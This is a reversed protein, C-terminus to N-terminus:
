WSFSLAATGLVDPAHQGKFEETRRVVSFDARIASSWFVSFGAQLDAVLIKKPVSASSQFSNGDLFINHAVARGQAGVFFYYGASGELRDADFYDTGSLGPRVRVPGYDVPLNTGVRLQGGLAAYTMVNGITAGAAPVVDVDFSGHGDGVLPRRWLREYSIMAGPENHLQFDWGAARGIGLFQHWRNQVQEGGAAPGVVGLDIEFNELMDGGTEQLLSTGLYAWAAYPRDHPDPPNQQIDKPTFISQAFFLAYRRKRAPDSQPFIPALDGLGDFPANWGSEPAVDPRLLSLRLGQTFHKDSYFYLSDNEELLTVRNKDDARAPGGPESVLWWVAPLLVLLRALRM